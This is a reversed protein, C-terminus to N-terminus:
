FIWFFLSEPHFPPFLMIPFFNGSSSVSETLDIPQAQVENRLRLERMKLKILFEHYAMNVCYIFGQKGEMFGFNIFYGYLFRLVPWGPVLSLYSKLAPNRTSTNSSFINKFPPRSYLRASAEESSYKNHREIWQTWGKSFTYHFYPEKIFGLEGKVEGEKQGHGFDTFNARGKRVVRFQWKPFNDCFKLWRGELMMKCCCYFGAINDDAETISGKLAKEFEPTVVEDADLFLIWDYKLPLHDLAFNRQQGFSKFVNSSFIAGYDKSIDMTLDTSGSDLVHVDDTWNVSKLCVPLDQEENKTLIIVSVM